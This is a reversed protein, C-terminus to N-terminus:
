RLDAEEREHKLVEDHRALGDEILAEAAASLKWRHQAAYIELRARTAPTLAVTLRASRAESDM